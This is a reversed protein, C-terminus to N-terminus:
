LLQLKGTAELVGRKKKELYKELEAISRLGKKGPHEKAFEQLSCLLLFHDHWRGIRTEIDKRTKEGSKYMTDELGLHDNLSHLYQLMKLTKRFQHLAEPSQDAKLSQSLVMLLHQYEAIIIKQTEQVSISQLALVKYLLDKYNTWSFQSEEELLKLQMKKERKQTYIAFKKPIPFEKEKLLKLNVQATRVKGSRSYLPQILKSIAGLTLAGDSAKELVSFWTYLEKVRVRFAHIDKRGLRPLAAMEEALAVMQKAVAYRLDKM